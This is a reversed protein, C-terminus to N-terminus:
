EDAGPPVSAARRADGYKTRQTLEQQVGTLPQCSVAERTVQAPIANAVSRSWDPGGTQQCLM